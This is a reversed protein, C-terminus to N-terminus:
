GIAYNSFRLQTPKPALALSDLRILPNTRLGTRIADPSREGLDQWAAAHLRQTRTTDPKSRQGPGIRVHFRLAGLADEIFM